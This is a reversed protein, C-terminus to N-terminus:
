SISKPSTFAIFFIIPISSAGGTNPLDKLVTVLSLRSNSVSMSISGRGSIYGKYKSSFLWTLVHFTDCFVPRSIPFFKPILLAKCDICTSNTFLVEVEFNISICLIMSFPLLFYFFVSRLLLSKVYQWLISFNKWCVEM